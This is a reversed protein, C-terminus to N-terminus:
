RAHGAGVPAPTPRAPTLHLTRLARTAPTRSLRALGATAFGLALRFVAHGPTQERDPQFVWAQGVDQPTWAALAPHLDEPVLSLASVAYRLLALCGLLELRASEDDTPPRGFYRALFADTGAPSLGLADAATAVDFLPDGPGVHDFDILWARDGDFLMNGPNLDNHCLTHETHLTALAARLRDFARLAEGFLALEPRSGALRAVSEGAERRKRAYLRVPSDWPLTHLRALLGAVSLAQAPGAPRVSHGQVRDMVLVGSEPDAHRVAPAIGQDGLLRAAAFEVAVAEREYAGADILRVVYQEPHGPWSLAYAQAWATPTEPFPETLPTAGPNLAHAIPALRRDQSM